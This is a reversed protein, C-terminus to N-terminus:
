VQTQLKAKIGQYWKAATATLRRCVLEAEEDREQFRLPDGLLKRLLYM